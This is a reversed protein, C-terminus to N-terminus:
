ISFFMVRLHEHQNEFRAAGKGMHQKTKGKLRSVRMRSPEAGSGTAKDRAPQYLGKAEEKGRM